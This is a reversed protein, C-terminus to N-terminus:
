AAIRRWDEPIGATTPNGNWLLIQMKNAPLLCTDSPQDPWWNLTGKSFRKCCLWFGQGDYALIKIASGKRNRFVFLSGSFPDSNLQRKCVAKLGDIQKRFDVPKVALYIRTQPSLQLM